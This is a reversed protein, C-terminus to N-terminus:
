ANNSVIMSYIKIIDEKEKEPSMKLVLDDRFLKLQRIKDVILYELTRGMDSFPFQWHDDNIYLSNYQTSLEDMEIAHDATEANINLPGYNVSNLSTIIPFYHKEDGGFSDLEVDPDNGFM